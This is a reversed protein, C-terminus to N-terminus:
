PELVLLPAPRLHIGEEARQDVVYVGLQNDEAMRFQDVYLTVLVEFFATDPRDEPVVIKRDGRLELRDGVKEIRDERRRVPLKKAFHAAVAVFAVEHWIQDIRTDLGIATELLLGVGVIQEKRSTRIGFSRFQNGVQMLLHVRYEGLLEKSMRFLADHDAIGVEAFNGVGSDTQVM